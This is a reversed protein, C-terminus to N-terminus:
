IAMMESVYSELTVPAPGVYQNADLYQRARDRGLDTLAYRFGATGSGAVGRVEILREARTREALPELISYPLRMRDAMAVGSAEGTYLSKVFLQGLQDANLGTEEITSPARPVTAWQVSDFTSTTATQM